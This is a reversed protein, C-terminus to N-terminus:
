FLYPLYAVPVACINWKLRIMLDLTLSWSDFYKRLEYAHSTLSTPTQFKMIILLTTKAKKKIKKTLMFKNVTPALNNCIYYASCKYIVCFITQM